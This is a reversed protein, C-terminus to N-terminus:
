RFPSQEAFDGMPDLGAAGVEASLHHLVGIITAPACDHSNRVICVPSHLLGLSRRWVHACLGHLSIFRLVAICHYLVLSFFIGTVAM